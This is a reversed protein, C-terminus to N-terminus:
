PEGRAMKVKRALNKMLCKRFNIIKGELSGGLWGLLALVDGRQERVVVGAGAGAAM